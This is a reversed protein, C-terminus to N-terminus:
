GFVKMALLAGIMVLVLGGFKMCWYLKGQVGKAVHRALLALLVGLAMVILGIVNFRSTDKMSGTFIRELM